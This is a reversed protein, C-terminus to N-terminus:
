RSALHVARKSCDIARQSDGMKRWYLSALNYLYWSTKNRTLGGFIQGPTLPLEIESERV